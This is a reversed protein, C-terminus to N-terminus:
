YKSSRFLLMAAGPLVMLVQLAYFLLGVAVCQELTVGFGQFLFYTSLERVGFGGIGIPILMMIFVVPTLAFVILPELEVSIAFFLLLFVGGRFVQMLVSIGFLRAIIRKPYQHGLIDNMAKIIKGFVRPLSVRELFRHTLRVFWPALAIGLLMVLCFSFTIQLERNDAYNLFLMAYITGLCAVSLMGVIGIIRDLLLLRATKKLDKQQNYLSGGRVFDAGIGGPSIFGASQSVLNIYLSQMFTIEIKEENLIVKWRISMLVRLIFVVSLALSFYILDAQRVSLWLTELDVFFLIAAVVILGLTIKLISIFKKKQM